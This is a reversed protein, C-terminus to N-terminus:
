SPADCDDYVEYELDLSALVSIISEVFEHRVHEAVKTHSGRGLIARIEDVDNLWGIRDKLKAALEISANPIVPIVVTKLSETM